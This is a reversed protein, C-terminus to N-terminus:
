TQQRDGQNLKEYGNLQITICLTFFSQALKIQQEPTAQGKMAAAYAESAWKQMDALSHMNQLKIQDPMM